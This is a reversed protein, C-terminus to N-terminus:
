VALDGHVRGPRATGESLSYTLGVVATRGSEVAARVSQSTELLHDCTQDVHEAVFEDVEELGRRRGALVSPIIREVLPRVFGRPMTGSIYSEVTATVAGCSNHGLVIVLPIDLVDVGYEISGLVADDIVHGATRVVFVDGLGLDFIIEAALRSDACGFIVAVPAQGATLGSRREANQNPHSPEGAVFRRNGEVLVEWAEAPTLDSTPVVVDPAPTTEPRTHPTM